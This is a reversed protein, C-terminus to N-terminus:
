ISTKALEYVTTTPRLQQHDGILILHQCSSSITTIIHAELVEAAEEVIVIKPQINQLLKRFKAAGTTTMGIVDANQLILLDEQNRLETMRNVVIQYQNELTVIKNRIDCLYKSRWFRYVDWRKKLPLQWLDVILECEEEEM